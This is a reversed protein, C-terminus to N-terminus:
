FFNGLNGFPFGNNGGNKKSSSKRKGSASKKPQEIGLAGKIAGEVLNVGANIIMDKPTDGMDAQKSRNCHKCMPQLNFDADSGGKSQPIIHDIDIENKKFWGGCRRCQYLGLPNSHRAFWDERYGM